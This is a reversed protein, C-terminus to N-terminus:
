VAKLAAIRTAATNKVAGNTTLTCQSTFLKNRTALFGLEVFVEVVIDLLTEFRHRNAGRQAPIGPPTGLYIYM